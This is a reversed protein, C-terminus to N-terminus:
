HQPSLGGSRAAPVATPLLRVGAGARVRARLTRTATGTRGSAWGAASSTGDGAWAGRREFEELTVASLAHVANLLREAGVVLRALEHDDLSSVDIEAILSALRGIDLQEAVAMGM